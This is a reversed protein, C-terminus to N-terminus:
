SLIHNAKIGDTRGASLLSGKKCAACLGRINLQYDLVTIEARSELVEKLGGFTIDVLKGCRECLLHDHPNMNRDYRDPGDLSSIQRIEGDAVMLRLNRYVTGLAISPFQKKAIRFIEEASLHNDTNMIIQFILQRQKTM